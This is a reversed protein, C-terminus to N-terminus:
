EDAEPGPADSPAVATSARLRAADQPRAHREYFAALLERSRALAQSDPRTAARQRLELLQKFNAEAEDSQGLKEHLQAVRELTTLSERHGPGLKKLLISLARLRLPLAEVPRELAQMLRAQANLTSAVDAHDSGLSAQRICM